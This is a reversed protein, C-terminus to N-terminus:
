RCGIFQLRDGAADHRAQFCVIAANPSAILPAVDEPERGVRAESFGPSRIVVDIEDDVSASDRSKTVRTAASRRCRRPTREAAVAGGRTARPSSPVPAAGHTEILTLTLTRTKTRTVAAFSWSSAWSWASAASIM